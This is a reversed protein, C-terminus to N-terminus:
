ISGFARSSFVYSNEILVDHYVGKTDSLDERYGM